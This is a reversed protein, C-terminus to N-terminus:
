EEIPQLGKDLHWDQFSPARLSGPKKPNEKDRYMGLAKVRAVRGIYKQPNELM